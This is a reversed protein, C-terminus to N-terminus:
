RAEEVQFLEQAVLRPDSAARPDWPRRPFPVVTRHGELFPAFLAREFRTIYRGRSHFQLGACVQCRLGLYEVLKAGVLTLLYLYRRPKRCWPCRYFLAMGSGRPLPRRVVQIPLDGRERAGSARRGRPRDAGDQSRVSSRWRRVDLVRFVPASPSRRPGLAAPLDATEARERRRSTSGQLPRGFRAGALDRAEDARPSRSTQESGERADAPHVQRRRGPGELLDHGGSDEAGFIRFITFSVAPLGMVRKSSDFLRRTSRRWRRSGQKLFSPQATTSVSSSM